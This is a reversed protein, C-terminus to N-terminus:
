EELGDAQATARPEREKKKGRMRSPMQGGAAAMPDYWYSGLQEALIQPDFTPGTPPLEGPLTLYERPVPSAVPSTPKLPKYGVMWPDIPPLPTDIPVPAPQPGLLKMFPNAQSSFFPIKEVPLDRWGM